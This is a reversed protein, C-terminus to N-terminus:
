NGPQVNAEIRHLGLTGFAYRLVLGIAETMYGHGTAGAFAYYGVFASQLGGRVIENLNVVGVIAGDARTCVLLRLGRPSRAGRVFAGFSRADRPPFAWPRHLQRSRRVLALFRERDAGTPRRLVVRRGSVVPRTVGRTRPTSAGGRQATPRPGGRGLREGGRSGRGARHRTRRRAPRFRDRADGRGHDPRRGCSGRDGGPGRRHPASRARLHARRAAAGGAGHRACTRDRGAAAPWGLAPAPVLRGAGGSRGPGAARRRTRACRRTVAGAGTEAGRRRQRARRPAPVPPLES